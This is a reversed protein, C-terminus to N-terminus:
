VVKNLTARARRLAADADSVKTNGEDAAKLSELLAEPWLTGYQEIRSALAAVSASLRTGIESALRESVATVQQPVEREARSKSQKDLKGKIAFAAAPAALTLLGGLLFNSFMLSLGVASLAMVGVDFRFSDIKFDLKAAVPGLAKEAHRGWNDNLLSQADDVIGEIQQGALETRERLIEEFRAHIYGELYRKTDAIDASKLEDQLESAFSKGFRRVAEETEEIVPRSRKSVTKTIETLEKKDAKKHSKLAKLIAKRDEKSLNEFQKARLSLQETFAHASQLVERSHNAQGSRIDLAVDWPHRALLKSAGLAQAADRLAKRVKKIKNTDLPGLQENTSTNTRAPM